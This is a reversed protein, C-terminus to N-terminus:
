IFKLFYMNIKSFDSKSTHFYLQVYKKELGIHYWSKWKNLYVNFVNARLEIIRNVRGRNEFITTRKDVMFNSGCQM